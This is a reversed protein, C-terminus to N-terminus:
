IKGDLPEAKITVCPELLIDMCATKESIGDGITTSGTKETKTEPVMGHKCPSTHVGAVTDGIWINTDSLLRVSDSFEVGVLVVEVMEPEFCKKYKYKVKEIEDVIVDAYEDTLVYDDFTLV